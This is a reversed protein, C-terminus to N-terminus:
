AQLKLPLQSHKMNLWAIRSLCNLTSQMTHLTQKIVLYIIIIIIIIILLERQRWDCVTVDWHWHKDVDIKRIVIAGHLQVNIQILMCCIQFSDTYTAGRNDWSHESQKRKLYSLILAFNTIGMEVETAWVSQVQSRSRQGRLYALESTRLILCKM